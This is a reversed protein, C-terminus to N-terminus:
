PGGGQKGNKRSGVGSLVEYGVAGENGDWQWEWYIGRGSTESAKCISSVASEQSCHNRWQVDPCLERKNEGIESVMEESYKEQEEEEM